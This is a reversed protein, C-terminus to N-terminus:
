SDSKKIIGFCSHSDKNTLKVCGAKKLMSGILAAKIDDSVPSRALFHLVTNGNADQKNVDKSHQILLSLLSENLPQQQAAIMLSTPGETNQKDVDADKCILCFALYVCIDIEQLDKTKYSCLYQLATMGFSDLQDVVHMNEVLLYTTQPKLQGISCAVHLSTMM